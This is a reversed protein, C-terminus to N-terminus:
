LLRNGPPNNQVLRQAPTGGLACFLAGEVTATERETLPAFPLGASWVFQRAGWSIRCPAPRGAKRWILGARSTIGNQDNSQVM